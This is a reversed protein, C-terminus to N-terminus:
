ASCYPESELDACGARSHCRQGTSIFGLLLAAPQCVAWCIAILADDLVFAPGGAPLGLEAMKVARADRGALGAWPLERRNLGGDDASVLHGAAVDLGLLGGDLFRIKILGTALFAYRM